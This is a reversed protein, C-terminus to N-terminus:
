IRNGGTDVICISYGAGSLDFDVPKIVPKSTDEFDISVFGGVACATQDMLGCPKGFYVNESFQSIQAIVANEIKGDNYFHNLINGVMVEFAASSSLGSGKLVTSTTYANFGGTKFGWKEFGACIGAILGSSKFKQSEKPAASESIKVVDMSYGASQLRCIEENNKSAVAIIDVTVAAALVKGTTTQPNGSIESRRAGFFSM